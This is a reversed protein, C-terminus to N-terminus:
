NRIRIMVMIIIVINIIIINIIISKHAPTCFTRPEVKWLPIGVPWTGRWGGGRLMM